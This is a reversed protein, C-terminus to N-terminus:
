FNQLYQIGYNGYIKKTKDTSCQQIVNNGIFNVAYQMRNEAINQRCPNDAM